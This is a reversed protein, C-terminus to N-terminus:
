SKGYLLQYILSELKRRNLLGAMEKGQAFRWMLFAKAASAYEGRM